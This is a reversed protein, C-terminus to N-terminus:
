CGVLCTGQYCCDLERVKGPSLFTTRSCRWPIRSALLHRYHHHFHSGQFGVKPLLAKNHSQLILISKSPEPYYGRGFGLERFKEFYWPIGTFPDEGFSNFASLLENFTSVSEVTKISLPQRAFRLFKAYVLHEIHINKNELSIPQATVWM